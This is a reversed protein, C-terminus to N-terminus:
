MWCLVNVPQSSFFFSLNIGCSKPWLVCMHLFLTWHSFIFLTCVVYFLSPPSLLDYWTIPLFIRLVIKFFSKRPFFFIITFRILVHNELFYVYAFLVSAVDSYLFKSDNKPLRLRFRFDPLTIFLLKTYYIFSVSSPCLPVIKISYRLFANFINFYYKSM